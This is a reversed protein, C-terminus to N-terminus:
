TIFETNLIIFEADFPGPSSVRRSLPATEADNKKNAVASFSRWEEEKRRRTAENTKNAGCIELQKM